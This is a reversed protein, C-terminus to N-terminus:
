RGLREEIPEDDRMRTAAISALLRLARDSASGPEARYVILQQGPAGHVDFANFELALHGIDPHHFVKTEHTKGRPDNKRWLAAFHPSLRLEELLSLTASDHPDFGMALRLNAVSAEASRNWDDFFTPGAPDLFVMRALNDIEAFPSYLARALPNIALLDLRRNIIFAPTEPWADLLRHLSPDVRSPAPAAAALPTAGALRFLHEHADVTLGLARSLANLVSASPNDERGQELRAYYDVSVGALMAVEERRLGPVRRVGSWRVGVDDPRTAARRASLFLGLENIAM